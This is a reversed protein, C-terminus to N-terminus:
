FLLSFFRVFLGLFHTFFFFLSFAYFFSFHSFLKFLGLFPTHFIVGICFSFFLLFLFFLFSFLFVLFWFFFPFVGSFFCVFFCYILMGFCCVLCFLCIPLMIDMIYVTKTLYCVLALFVFHLIWLWFFTRWVRALQRWLAPYNCALM